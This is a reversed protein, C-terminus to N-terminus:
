CAPATWDPIGLAQCVPDNPKLDEGWHVFVNRDIGFRYPMTINPIKTGDLYAPWFPVRDIMCTPLVVNYVQWLHQYPVLLVIADHIQLLIKYALQVSTFDCRYYYLERIANWVADAVSSQIPFNQAQREQEGVVTRDSTAAFRRKRGFPNAMWRPDQSRERCERLFDATGPYAEFYAEIMLQCDAESVRVGEENCQRAIALPGRGYPIGFNVNKAAVRLGKKGAERMGTKTPVVDHLQFARCAQQAHIDYHQPHDEPLINRAVHDIMARDQCLWALVALEAGTYDAEVGVYGPPVTFISRIPHKHAEGLIRKYDDERRSSINQLPPRYSSSRGTEKVQSIHTHVCGDPQISGPIGKEYVFNGGEDTEFGLGDDRTTPRRLAGILVQSIFRIDRLKMALPHHHGLIGLVEKDTGATYFQAERRAVLDSWQKPRKGTSKIPPLNLTLADPPRISLRQNTAKDLKFGYDDGFLLARVQPHSGPNFGPWNIETRLEQLLRERADMFIATLSDVRDRDITFGTMEMELVALSAAHNTWYAAWSDNGFWDKALLGNEEFLRLIIRRTADADYCNSVFGVQTLFNGTEPVTLCYRVGRGRSTRPESPEIATVTEYFPDTGIPHLSISDVALISKYGMTPHMYIAIARQFNHFSVRSIQLFHGRANYTVDRGFQSRLWWLVLREEAADIHCYIRSANPTSGGNCVLSGDDQYWIALGLLGLNELVDTTIRLKCHRHEAVPKAPFRDALSAIYRSFPTVFRVHAPNTQVQAPRQDVFLNSKWEAYAARRICQGFGFGIGRGNKRVYGGDGLLTGLFVSLQQPSFECEDTLIADHGVVLQDVRVKGRQTVVKHDPTLTPGLLGWRGRPTTATALKFWEKQGVDQRHWGTVRANVVVGDRFGRVEGAYRTKVLVSIKEWRGDGLQVLSGGSLCAYNHGSQGLRPDPHLVWDPAEGYGELDEADLKHRYCYDKRWEVVAVDYRPVTTLRTALDELKFRATENVAHYAVSTDWGGETRNNIDPHPAYEARLDLGEHILWPLDARFFHGGIRVKRQPTSKLLRTLQFIAREPSPKFAPQGGQHRLVVCRAWKHYCSFQITRLYAGRGGPCDDPGGHWEGDVATICTLPNPDALIMDVVRALERETYINAHDIDCEDNGIDGGNVLQWFLGLQGILDDALEPTRYVAAPHIATMVKAVHYRPTEGWEHLPIPLEVVRGSMATVSYPKGLLAQSADSGLCLIYTPRVLRLEQHLLPLCDNVWGAPMKSSGGSRDLNPFKVLNTIYWNEVDRDNIGLIGFAKPLEESTPGVFNRGERVEEVGPQKGLVMVTAPRPGGNFGSTSEGWIHGPVFPAPVQQGKVIASLQFQEDYLARRYLYHLFKGYDQTHKEAGTGVIKPAADGLRVAEAVFDPGPLAMGPANLSVFPLERDLQESPREDLITQLLQVALEQSM